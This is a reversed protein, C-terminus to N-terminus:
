NKFESATKFLQKSPLNSLSRDRVVFGKRMEAFNSRNKQQQNDLIDHFNLAIFYAMVMGLQLLTAM